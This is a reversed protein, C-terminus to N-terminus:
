TFHTTLSCAADTTCCVGADSVCSVGTEGADVVSGTLEDDDVLQAQSSNDPPSTTCNMSQSSCIHLCERRIDELQRQLLAEHETRLRNLLELVTSTGAVGSCTSRIWALEEAQQRVQQQLAQIEAQLKSVTVSNKAVLQDYRCQLDALRSELDQPSSTWCSPSSM